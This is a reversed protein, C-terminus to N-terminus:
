RVPAAGSTEQRPWHGDPTSDVKSRHRKARDHPCYTTPRGATPYYTANFHLISRRDHHIVFFGYLVNMMATPVTFFDM